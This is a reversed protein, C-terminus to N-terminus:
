SARRKPPTPQPLVLDFGFRRKVEAVIAEDEFSEIGPTPLIGVVNDPEEGVIGSGMDGEWGRSNGHTRMRIWYKDRGDSLAQMRVEIAGHFSCAEVTLGSNENGLRSAEGAKGKVTGYFRSWAM